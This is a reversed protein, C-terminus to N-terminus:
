KALPATAKEIWSATPADLEPTLRRRVEAHYRDLWAIEGPLM